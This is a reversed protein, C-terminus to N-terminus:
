MILLEIIQVGWWINTHDLRSSHFPRPRYCTHPALLPTLPTKTPFDSLFLDCPLGLRLHFPLISTSRWPTPHPTRVPNIQRLIRAPPPYQYIHYHVNPNWLIRPIEQSASIWNAEWFHSQKMSYTLLYNHIYVPPPNYRRPQLAPTPALVLQIYRWDVM